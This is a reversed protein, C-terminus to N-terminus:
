QALHRRALDAWESEPDLSLYARWHEAAEPSRGAQECCCALNFHADAYDPRAALARGLCDIAEVLRGAEELLDALNYWAEAMEPAQDLASRYREEAAQPREQARLVNALNFQAEPFHPRVALAARYAKEAECLREDIECAIAHEFLEDASRTELAPAFPVPGPPAASASRGFDLMLQGDPAMCLEGLEALLAHPGAAVIRLQALPRDTGPLVSALGRISRGITLPSVGAGVLATITQLSILDQFDYLGEDSRVLGLAEWRRLASPEIALLDCVQHEPYSKRLTQRRTELGACELFEAECLIRLPSGSRRLTEARRLKRSVTGNALLPWGEMGVVLMSTRRSVTTVAVGGASRVIEHAEARRMSALRGTFAVRAHQLTPLSTATPAAM